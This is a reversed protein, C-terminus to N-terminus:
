CDVDMKIRFVDGDRFDVGFEEFWEGYYKYLDILVNDICDYDDVCKLVEGTILDILDIRFGDDEYGIVDIEYKKMTLKGRKHKYNYGTELRKYVTKSFIFSTM